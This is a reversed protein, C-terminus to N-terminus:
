MMVVVMGDLVVVVQAVVQAALLVQKAGHDICSARWSGDIAGSLRVGAVEVVMKMVVVVMMKVLLLVLLLILVVVM